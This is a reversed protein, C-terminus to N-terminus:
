TTQQGAKERLRMKMKSYIGGAQALSLGMEWIPCGQPCEWVSDPLETIKNDDMWKFASTLGTDLTEIYGASM